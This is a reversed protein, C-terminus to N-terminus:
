NDFVYVQTLYMLSIVSSIPEFAFENWFTFYVHSIVDYVSCILLWIYRVIEMFKRPLVYDHDM